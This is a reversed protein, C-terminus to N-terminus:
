SKVIPVPMEVRKRRSRSRKRWKGKPLDCFIIPKLTMKNTWLVHGFMKSSRFMEAGLYEVRLLSIFERKDKRKTQMSGM